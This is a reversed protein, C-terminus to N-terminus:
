SEFLKYAQKWTEIPICSLIRYYRSINGPKERNYVRNNYCYTKTMLYPSRERFGHLNYDYELTVHHRNDIRFGVLNCGYKEISIM